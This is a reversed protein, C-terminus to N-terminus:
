QEDVNIEKEYEEFTKNNLDKESMVIQSADIWSQWQINLTADFAFIAGESEKNYFNDCKYQFITDNSLSMFGHAFGKPVFFQRHNEESLYVAYIKKYNPSDPRIDIVVDIVSGKVVRVLKAQAHEGKQFHMGRLVGFSSRSENDQVFNVDGVKEKFEKENFSEFFYGREDIFMKPFILAPGNEDLFSVQM